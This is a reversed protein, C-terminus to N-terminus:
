NSEGTGVATTTIAVTPTLAVTPTVFATATPLPTLTPPPAPTSTPSFQALYADQGLARVLVIKTREFLAESVPFVGVDGMLGNMNGLYYLLFAGVQPRTGLTNLDTYLLLPYVLIYAGSTVTAGNPEIGDVAIIRLGARNQQYDAFSLLGVANPTDAVAFAIEQGDELFTTAALNELLSPNRDLIKESWVTSIMDTTNPVFRSIEVAPWGRRIDAWRQATVLAALERQNMNSVFDAQANAVVVVAASAIRLAVPARNHQRCLELESQRIPREAMVIDTLQPSDPAQTCYRQFILDASIEEIRMSDRYGASVFNAYIQRTLPSLAASGAIMVDGVVELPEVAPLPLGSPPVFDHELPTPTANGRLPAPASTLFRAIALDEAVPTPAAARWNLLNCGTLLLVLILSLYRHM